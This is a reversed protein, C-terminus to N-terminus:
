RGALEEIKDELAAIRALLMALEKQTDTDQRKTEDIKMHNGGLADFYHTDTEVRERSVNYYFEANYSGMPAIEVIGPRMIRSYPAAAMHETINEKVTIKLFARDEIYTGVKVGGWDVQDTYRGDECVLMRLHIVPYVNGYMGVQVVDGPIKQPSAIYWIGGGRKLDEAINKRTFGGDKKCKRIREEIRSNCLSTGCAM